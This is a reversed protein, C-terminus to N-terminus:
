LHPNAAGKAYREEEYPSNFLINARITENQVWTEQVAFALGGARPLNFMSDSHTPQFHIEGLLAM